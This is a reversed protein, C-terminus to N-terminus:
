MLIEWPGLFRYEMHTGFTSFWQKQDIIKGVLSDLKINKKNKLAFHNRIWVDVAFRRLRFQSQAEIRTKVNEFLIEPWVFINWEPLFTSPEYADGVILKVSKKLNQYKGM